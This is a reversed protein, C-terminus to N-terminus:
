GGADWFTVVNSFRDNRIYNALIFDHQIVLTCYAHLIGPTRLFLLFRSLSRHEHLVSHSSSPLSCPPAASALSRQLSGAFRWFGPPLSPVSKEMRLLFSGVSDVAEDQVELRWVQSVTLKQPKHWEPSPLGLFHVSDGFIIISDRLAPFSNNEGERILLLWCYTWFLM